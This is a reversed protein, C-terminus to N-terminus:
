LETNGLRLLRLHSWASESLGTKLTPGPYAKRVPEVSAWVTPRLDWNLRLVDALGPDGAKGM